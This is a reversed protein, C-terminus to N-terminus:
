DKATTSKTARRKAQLDRYNLFRDQIYRPKIERWFTSPSAGIERSMSEKTRRLVNTHKRKFEYFGDKIVYARLRHGGLSYVTVQRIVRQTSILEINAVCLKERKKLSEYKDSLYADSYDPPNTGEHNRRMENLVSEIETAVAIFEAYAERRQTRLWQNTNQRVSYAAVTVTGAISLLALIIQLWDTQAEAAEIIVNGGPPIPVPSPTLLRM